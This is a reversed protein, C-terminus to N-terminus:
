SDLDFEGCYQIVVNKLFNGTGFSSNYPITYGYKQCKTTDGETTGKIYAFTDWVKSWKRKTGQMKAKQPKEEKVPKVSGKTSPKTNANENERIDAEDEESLSEYLPINSEPHEKAM